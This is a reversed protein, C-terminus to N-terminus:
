ALIKELVIFELPIKPIGFKPDNPFPKKEGTITYGHREYWAILNHRVSIVTMMVSNCGLEKAKSEAASLLLKGTGKGQLNPSVTLMGLYMKTNQKELFVCGVIEHEDTCKLLM